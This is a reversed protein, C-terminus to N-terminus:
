ANEMMARSLNLAEESPNNGDIIRAIERVRADRDLRYLNTVTRSETEAKEIFLHVDAAAALQPQHSVCIVQKKEGLKKLKKAIKQAASGSVGTDIEDFILTDTDDADALISKMALMVRSLEGGSAFKALPKLEEGVNPCIMFEAIDAGSKGCEKPKIDVAFRVKPMDLEALSREIERSLKEGATIRTKTLKAAAQKMAKEAEAYEKELKETLETGGDLESLERIANEYYKNVAAVSGGYKRELKGILDLRDEIEALRAPSYEVGDLLARIEHLADELSYKIDYVKEAASQVSSVEDLRELARAARSILDYANAGDADYLLQTAEAVAGTLSEENQILTREESLEEREGEYLDAAQIEETQYRLLDIREAREQENATLKLLREKLEKCYIYANKYTASEKSNEAFSDLYGLHYKPNLLSLNDQQGHINVLCAAVDRLMSQTVVMGNIRCINRGDATVDRLITVTNDEVEAGLECLKERVSDSVDFLAQVRAKDTGYRIIGKNARAGLILNVSDIIISKGAGTEGTLVTMGGALDVELRDILAVNQIELKTLM